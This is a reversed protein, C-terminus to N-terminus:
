KLKAPDLELRWLLTRQTIAQNDDSILWVQVKGGAGPVIALGEFNDVPLPSELRALETAHWVQAPRLDAPDALGISGSFRAPFPWLLQRQLVLVRGDPLQAMDTPRFGDTGKFLFRRESPRRTPDGSMLVAPHPAASDWATRQEALVVFRGDALRVMAEGGQNASWGSMASPRVMVRDTLAPTTRVIANLNELALSLADAQPDYTASEIDRAAKLQWQDATSGGIRAPGTYPAEPVPFDIMYGRDSFSLMRGPRISLLTSYGGFWYHPSTLQWAGTSRFPGIRRLAPDVPVPTITVRQEFSPIPPPMQWWLGPALGVLLLVILLRRLMMGPTATAACCILRAM